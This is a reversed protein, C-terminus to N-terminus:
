RGPKAPELRRVGNAELYADLRAREDASLRASEVLYTEGAAPMPIRVESVAQDLSTCDLGLLFGVGRCTAVLREGLQSEIRVPFTAPLELPTVLYGSPSRFLRVRAYIAQRQSPVTLRDELRSTTGSLDLDAILRGSGSFELELGADFLGEGRPKLVIRNRVLDLQHQPSSLQITLSEGYQIPVIEPALRDYRQNLSRLEFVEPGTTPPGTVASAALAAGCAVLAAPLLPLSRRLAARIL